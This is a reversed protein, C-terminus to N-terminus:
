RAHGILITGLVILAVGAVTAASMQEGLLWASAVLVLVFSLSMMPYARSLELQTLAAMWALAAVFAAALGSLVFPDLLMRLLFAVQELPPEPLAGYAGVRWKIVVQGYVTLVITTLVYLYGM